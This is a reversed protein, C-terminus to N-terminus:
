QSLLESLEEWMPQFDLCFLEKKFHDHEKRYAEIMKSEREKSYKVNALRDCLKVYGAFPTNRIGEYYKDNAREKRTKGKENTLAFTIEAVEVGLIKKVDNYTQRCDEIIDHTWASAIVIELVNEPLLYAYKCAFDVVMQLHTEYPKEDYTHNTETHSKIAYDKAKAVLESSLTQKLKIASLHNQASDKLM